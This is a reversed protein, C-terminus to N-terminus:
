PTTEQEQAALSRELAARLDDPFAQPKHTALSTCVLVQTFEVRTGDDGVFAINLKLSGGGLREIRITQQLRDGHRSVRLFRTDLQATPMGVRRQGILLDFPLGLDHAFWDEILENLMEFYRPYFVIGAPDCHGFRVLQERQFANGM